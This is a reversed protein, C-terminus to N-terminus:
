HPYLDTEFPIDKLLNRWYYATNPEFAGPADFFVDWLPWGDHVGLKGIRAYFEGFKTIEVPAMDRTMAFIQVLHSYAGHKLAFKGEEVPIQKQGVIGEFFGQSNLPGDIIKITMGLKQLEANVADKGAKVIALAEQQNKTNYLRAALDKEYSMDAVLNPPMKGASITRYSYIAGLIKLDFHNSGTPSALPEIQISQLAGASNETMGLDKWLLIVDSGEPNAEFDAQYTHEPLMKLKIRFRSGSELGTARFRLGGDYRAPDLVPGTSDPIKWEISPASQDAAFSGSFRLGDANSTVASGNQAGVTGGAPGAVHWSSLEMNIQHLDKSNSDFEIESDAAFYPEHDERFPARLDPITTTHVQKIDEVSTARDKAAEVVSPTLHLSNKLSAGEALGRVLKLQDEPSFSNLDEISHVRTPLSLTEAEQNVEQIFAREFNQSSLKDAAQVGDETSLHHLFDVLVGDSTLGSIRRSVTPHSTSCASLLLLALCSYLSLSPRRM